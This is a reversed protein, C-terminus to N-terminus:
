SLGFLNAVTLYVFYQTAVCRWYNVNVSCATTKLYGFYKNFYELYNKLYGFYKKLYEFCKKLYGFYKKLYEFCKKLYEFYKKLYELCKKLYKLYKKLSEFYKKFYELCKKLYGLYEPCHQLFHNECERKSWLTLQALDYFAIRFLHVPSALNNCDFIKWRSFLLLYQIWPQKM